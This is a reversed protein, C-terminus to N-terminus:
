LGHRRPHDAQPRQQKSRTTTGMEGHVFLTVINANPERCSAREPACWRRCGRPKSDLGALCHTLKTISPALITISDTLVTIGHTLVTISDTLVTIGHALVTISGTLVTIGHALVAISDTLVGINHALVTISDTLVTFNPILVTISSTPTAFSWKWSRLSKKRHGAVDVGNRLSRYISPDRSAPM